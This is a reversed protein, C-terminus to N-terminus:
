RQDIQIAGSPCQDVAKRATAQEAASPTAHLLMVIGDNDTQDFLRPAVLVCNGAGICKQQDIVIKL